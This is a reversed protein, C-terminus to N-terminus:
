DDGIKKRLVDIDIKKLIKVGSLNINLVSGPWYNLTYKANDVLVLVVNEENYDIGEVLDIDKIGLLLLTYVIGLARGYYCYNNENLLEWPTLWDVVDSPHLYHTSIPAQQWFKDVEVCITAIDKDALSEKLKFWERLRTYYDLFFVNIM